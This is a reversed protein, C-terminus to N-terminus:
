FTLLLRVHVMREQMCVHLKYVNAVIPTASLYTPFTGIVHPKHTPPFYLFIFFIFFILKDRQFLGIRVDYQM